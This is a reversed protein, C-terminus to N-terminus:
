SSSQAWASRRATTLVDANEAAHEDDFTIDGRDM